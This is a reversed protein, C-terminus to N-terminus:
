VSQHYFRIALLSNPTLRFCFILGLNFSVDGAGCPMELCIMHSKNYIPFAEMAAENYVDVDNLVSKLDAFFSLLFYFLTETVVGADFKISGLLCCQFVM